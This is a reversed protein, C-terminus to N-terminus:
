KSKCTHTYLYLGLATLSTQPLVQPLVFKNCMHVLTERALPKLYPLPHSPDLAMKELLPILVYMNHVADKICIKLPQEAKAGKHSEFLRDSRIAVMRISDTAKWTRYVLEPDCSPRTSSSM